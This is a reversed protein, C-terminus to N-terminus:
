YDGGLLIDDQIISNNATIQRTNGSLDIGLDLIEISEQYKKTQTCSIGNLLYVNVLTPFLELCRKSDKYLRKFDQIQYEMILVQDWIAYRSEDFELAKQFNELAKSDNENKLYFHLSQLDPLYFHM